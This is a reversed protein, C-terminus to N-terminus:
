ARLVRVMPLGRCQASLLHVSHHGRGQLVSMGEERDEGEGRLVRVMPLGRCQASLLHVSHHGRGQLVSMGEERDEGRM